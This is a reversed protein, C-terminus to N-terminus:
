IKHLVTCSLSVTVASVLLFDCTAQVIAGFGTIKRVGLVRFIDCTNAAIHKVYTPFRHPTYNWRDYWFQLVKWPRRITVYVTFTAIDPCHYLIFVNNNCVVLQDALRSCVRRSQGGNDAACPEAMSPPDRCVLRRYRWCTADVNPLFCGARHEVDGDCATRGDPRRQQPESPRSRVALCCWLYPAALRSKRVDDSSEERRRTSACWRM